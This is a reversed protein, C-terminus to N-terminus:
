GTEQKRATGNIKRFKVSWKAEMRGAATYWTNYAPSLNRTVHCSTVHRKYAAVTECSLRSLVGYTGAYQKVVSEDRNMINVKKLENKCREENIKESKGKKNRREIKRRKHGGKEV